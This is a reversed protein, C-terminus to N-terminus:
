IVYKKHAQELEDESLSLYIQTTTIQEHGLMKSVQEIPMGRRLAMTACTRRFKHPNAKEVGARKAIKRMMQEITGADIHTDPTVNEPYMWWEKADRRKKGRTREAVGRQKGGAFLYPNCDKREQMYLELQVMTKANLYVIRDKNGKGHVLAKNKDIDNVQIGVLESVRCGTSLLMEVVLKERVGEAAIRIKEVEVDTLAPKVSREYKIRDVRATPNKAVLEEAVLYQYFTRLYRLETDATRKGIHDRRQRVALYYRIDDSTIDDVTKGIHDLIMQIGTKYSRITRPTCGKVTKAIIFKKLLYENRDEKLEALETCREVIEYPEMAIYLMNKIEEVDVGLPILGACISNILEERMGTM